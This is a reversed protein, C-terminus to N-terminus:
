KFNRKIRERDEFPKESSWVLKLYADRDENYTKVSYPVERYIILEYDIRQRNGTANWMM